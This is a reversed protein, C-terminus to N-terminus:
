ENVWNNPPEKKNESPYWVYYDRYKNNPQDNKCSENFWVHQDSTHNPILDM